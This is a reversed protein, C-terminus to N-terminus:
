LIIDAADFRLSFEYAKMEAERTFSFDTVLGAIGNKLHGEYSSAFLRSAHVTNASSLKVSTDGSTTLFFNRQAVESDLANKGKTVFSNYPIQIGRIYDGKQDPAYFQNEIFDLGVQLADSVQNVKLNSAFNNSNALVGLLDQAKDGGSKVKKGSRGGSFGQTAPMQGLGLTTNITGSLRGLSSPYLQTITLRCDHGNFSESIATEFVKDMTTDGAANVKRNLDLYSSTLAKSMLYTIYEDTRTLGGGTDRAAGNEHAPFEPGVSENPAASENFTDANKIPVVIVPTQEGGLLNSNSYPIQMIRITSNLIDSASIAKSFNVTITTSTMSRIIAYFDENSSTQIRKNSSDYFVIRQQVTSESLEFWERPDNGSVTIENSASLSSVTMNTPRNYNLFGHPEKVTGVMRDDFGVRVSVNDFDYRMDAYLHTTPLEINYKRSLYGELTNQEDTTIVRNYYLVEYIGGEFEKISSATNRGIRLPRASDSNPVFTIGTATVPTGANVTLSVKDAQADSNTDEMVFMCIHAADTPASGAAAQLTQKASGDRYYAEFRGANVAIGYGQEENGGEVDIIPLEATASDPKAVVILTFEESNLFANYDVSMDDNTGDFHVFPSSGADRFLPQKTNNTQTANRANSSDTWTPVKAGDSQTLVSADLWLQLGTQVPNELRVTEEVWYGVPFDIYKGHWNKIVDNGLDKLEFTQGGPSGGGGLLFGGGGPFIDGAGFGGFSAGIGTVNAVTGGIQNFSSVILSDGGSGGLPTGVKPILQQPQNFDLKATAQATQEQGLDDAFVGQVEIRVSSQNLDIGLKKADFFPIGFNSQIREVYIDVSSVDLSITDGNEQVLRVPMREGADAM